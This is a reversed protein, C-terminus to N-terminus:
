YHFISGTNPKPNIVLSAATVGSLDANCGNADTLSVVNLSTTGPTFVSINITPNSSSVTYNYSNMGDSLVVDWPAMGTLTLIVYSSDGECVQSGALQITPLPRLIIDLFVTDGVCNSSNQEVAYIRTSGSASGWDIEITSQNTSVSNDIVGLASYGSAFGWSYSSSANSNSIGYTVNLSEVCLTDPTTVQGFSVISIIWFLLVFLITKKWNSYFYTTARM